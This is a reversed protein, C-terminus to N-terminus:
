QFRVAADTVHYNVLVSYRDGPVVAVVFRGDPGTRLLPDLPIRPYAM